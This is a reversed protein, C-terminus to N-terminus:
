VHLIKKLRVKVNNPVIKSIVIRIKNIKIYKNILKDFRYKDLNEFFDKRNKHFKCNERFQANNNIAFDLSLEELNCINEIHKLLKEGKKTNIVIMSEGKHVDKELHVKEIGWCDSITIDSIRNPNAFICEECSPRYFLANHFGRLYLDKTSDKIITKDNKLKIKINRSNWKDNQLVKERFNINTIKSKYKKEIFDIYKNFVKQSPVGHCILDICILNEYEKQLYKKLGAIQCPTGTFVVKKGNNLFEKAKIYNDRINSQVYKSKRFIDINEKDQIYDHIVNFKEDYKAGFIVYNEDCFAEVIASFAGGSASKNLIEEDKLSLGYVKQIYTEKELKNKIPCVKECLGCDVCEKGRVPYLFGEEDEVMQICKKPCIQKCTGCGTCKNKEIIKLNNM